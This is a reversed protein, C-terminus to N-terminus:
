VDTDAPLSTVSSRSNVTPNRCWQVQGGTQVGVKMRGTIEGQDNRAIRERRRNEAGLRREAHHSLVAEIIHPQVGLEAMHTACSRRLDHLTWPVMPEAGARARAESIRADLEKKPVSFGTFGAASRGFVFDGSRPAAAILAAAAASLPVDHATDNKVRAAPLRILRGSPDIESRRLGGIEARRQGTLILLKVITGFVTDGLLQWVEHLEQGTLVRERGKGNGRRNTDNVPNSEVLSEKRAWVFFASLVARARDASAPGRDAAIAGLQAAVTRRDVKAVPTTHLPKWLTL